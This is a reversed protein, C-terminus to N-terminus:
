LSLAYRSFEEAVDRRWIWVRPPLYKNLLGWAATLLLIRCLVLPWLSIDTFILPVGALGVMLGSFWFNDYGFLTDWYTSFAAWSLGFVMAYAWWVDAHWGSYLIAAVILVLPCGIDRWKTNYGHAGGMRGLVGAIFMLLVWIM